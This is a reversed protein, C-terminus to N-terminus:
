NHAEDERSEKRVQHLNGENKNQDVDDAIASLLNSAKRHYELAINSLQPSLAETITEFIKSNYQWVRVKCIFEEICMRISNVIKKLLGLDQMATWLKMRGVRNLVKKFDVFMQQLECDLEWCKEM